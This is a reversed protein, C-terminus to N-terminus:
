ILGEPWKKWYDMQELLNKKKEKLGFTWLEFTYFYIRLIKQVIAVKGSIKKCM